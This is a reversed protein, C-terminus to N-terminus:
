RSYQPRATAGPIQLLWCAFATAPAAALRHSAKSWFRQLDEPKTVAEMAQLIAYLVEVNTVQRIAPMLQLAEAGFKIKLCM